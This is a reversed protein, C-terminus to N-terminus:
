LLLGALLSINVDAYIHVSTMQFQYIARRNFHLISDYFFRTRFLERNAEAMSRRSHGAYINNHRETKINMQIINNTTM